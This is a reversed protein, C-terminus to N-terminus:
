SEIIRQNDKDLGKILDKKKKDLEKTERLQSETQIM